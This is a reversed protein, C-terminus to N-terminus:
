LDVQVDEDDQIVWKHSLSAEANYANALTDKVDHDQGFNAVRYNM